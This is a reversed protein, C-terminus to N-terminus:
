IYIKPHYCILFIIWTIYTYLYLNLFVFEEIFYFDKKPIKYTHFIAFIYFYNQFAWSQGLRKKTYVEFCLNFICIVICNQKKCSVLAVLINYPLKKFNNLLYNFLIPNSKLFFDNLPRNM